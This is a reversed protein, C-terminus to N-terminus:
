GERSVKSIARGTRYGERKGDKFGSGYSITSSTFWVLGIWIWFHWMNM